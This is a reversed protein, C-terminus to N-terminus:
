RLCMVYIQIKKFSAAAVTHLDILSEASLVAKLISEHVLLIYIINPKTGDQNIFFGCYFKTIKKVNQICKDANLPM